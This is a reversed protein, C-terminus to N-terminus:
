GGEGTLDRLGLQTSSLGGKTNESRTRAGGGDEVFGPSRSQGTVPSKDKKQVGGSGILENQVKQALLSAKLVASIAVQQEKAYSSMSIHLHRSLLSLRRLLPTPLPTIPAHSPPLSVQEDNPSADTANQNRERTM